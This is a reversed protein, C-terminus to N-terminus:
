NVRFIKTGFEVPQGSEVLVEVITGSINTKIENMVKMAEIICVIQNKEVKDGVKIFSPDEPSPSAYFTGVMPSTIYQSNDEKQSENSSLTRSPMEGGKLFAQGGRQAASLYKREEEIEDFSSPLPRLESDAQELVLEFNDKKISLRKTGTKGMAAMLEKIQKFEM